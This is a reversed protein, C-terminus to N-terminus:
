WNLLEHRSLSWSRPIWPTIRRARPGALRDTGRQSAMSIRDGLAGQSALGAVVALVGFALNIAAGITGNDFYNPLV